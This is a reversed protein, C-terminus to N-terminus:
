RLAFEFIQRAVPLAARSGGSNELLVVVTVKPDDAPAFGAFWGHAEGAANEASGTKGAVTIGNVSADRGTGHEVAYVMMDKLAEAEAASFLFKEIKPTTKDVTRGAATRVHDLLYPRMAAGGNAAASYLVSMYLPTVLTLGQGIGTEALLEVGTEGRAFQSKAHDFDLGLPAGFLLDYATATLNEHGILVALRAFYANCSVAYAETLGITGHAANQNCHITKGGFTERSVCMYGLDDENLYRMAAVAVVTKFVSGPPYLGAFARNVFPGDPDANLEDWEEEVCAPDFGPSSVCAFIRGTSPETVTIAGKKSGILKRCLLQLESDLTLVVSNGTLEAGNILHEARRYIEFDLSQLTLSYKSEAGSRVRGAYGVTHAFADGYPYLRANPDDPMFNGALIMGDSSLVSGRRVDRGALSLRLNYPNTISAKADFFYFKALYAACCLFLVAVLATLNRARVKAGNV